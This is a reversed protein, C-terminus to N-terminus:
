WTGIVKDKCIGKPLEELGTQLMSGTVTYPNEYWVIKSMRVSV